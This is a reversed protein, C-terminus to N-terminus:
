DRSLLDRGTRMEGDTYAICRLGAAEGLMLCMSEAQELLARRSRQFELQRGLLIVATEVFEADSRLRRLDARVVQRGPGQPDYSVTLGAHGSVSTTATAGRLHELQERVDRLRAYYRSIERRAGRDTILDLRGAGTLSDHVERPPTIAPYSNLALLALGIEEETLDGPAQGSLAAVAGDQLSLRSDAIAGIERLYRVIEVSEGLMDKVAADQEARLAARQGHQTVLLALLIALFVSLFNTGVAFWDQKRLATALRRLIM